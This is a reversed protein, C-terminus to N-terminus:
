GSPRVCNILSLSIQAGLRRGFRGCPQSAIEQSTRSAGSRRGQLTLRNLGARGRSLAFLCGRLGLKLSSLARNWHPDITKRGGQQVIHLKEFVLLLTAVAIVLILRELSAADRRKANELGFLGSKDDLFGEEMQLREGSAAFTGLGTPEDSVVQWQEPGDTLRGLAVHVPGFRYGTLTVNHFFRTERVALKIEGITCVRQGDPAALILNSKIRIRFHWGCVRLWGMLATDCCGRDALLRVDHLGLFDLLGKAEALVPLLQEPSVQASAHELVRPVVAVRILCFRGFLISTDLALTLSHPGWDRLAQTILPGDVSGPDIAPNELWRRCRRETTQAVTAQSYIHPLWSPISVSQSLVLGSVRWALTRTNRVDNWLAPHLHPLLAQYLRPADGTVDETKM